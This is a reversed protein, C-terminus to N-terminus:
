KTIPTMIAIVKGGLKIEIRLLEGSVLKNLLEFFHKQVETAPLKIIKINNIM